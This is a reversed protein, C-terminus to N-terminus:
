FIRESGRSDADSRAAPGHYALYSSACDKGMLRALIRHDIRTVDVFILADVVDSFQPDVNFSAVKGGLKLYHRLLVPVGKGDPEIESIWDSLEDVGCINHELSHSDWGAPWVPKFSNRPKLSPLCRDTSHHARLFESILTKSFPLFDNSISVPGFLMRYRPNRGLYCAIGKWLLPLSVSDRQCEARVFSRGLELAPGTRKFVSRKLRFLTNSYLGEIGFCDVIEDAHGLRYGGAVSNSTADWLFLHVYYQDFQDLDLAKGSGEGAARFALERQRGIESLVLPIQDAHAYMVRLSDDGALSQQSGLRRVEDALLEPALAAKVPSRRAKNQSRCPAIVRSELLYTRQRLLETGAEDSAATQLRESPIIHGVELDVIQNRRRLFERPLLITRFGAHVFGLAQFLPGNSGRFFVPLVPAGTKRALRVVSNSWRPDTVLRRGLRVHSVEGAPFIALTGGSNLWEISQKLPKLNRQVSSTGGFPDVFILLDHLEQIRQLIHNAMVKVDPRVSKLVSALILGEVAGFPHNAIAILPGYRPIRKIDSDSVRYRIGLANLLRDHFGYSGDDAATQSYLTRFQDIHLIRGLIGNMLPAMARRVPDKFTIALPPISNARQASRQM